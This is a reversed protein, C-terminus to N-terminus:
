QTTYIRHLSLFSFFLGILVVSTRIWNMMQWEAVTKKLLSIDSLEATKFLIENRPFFYGFTMGEALLYMALAVALPIRIQIGYKWFLILTILGLLQNLPSFVRFFNGPNAAKFYDRAVAISEPINSGWSKADVLSSYLNVFLVGSAITISAFLILNKM